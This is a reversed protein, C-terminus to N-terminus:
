EEAKVETVKTITVTVTINKSQLIMEKGPGIYQTGDLMFGDGTFVGYAKLTGTVDFRAPNAAKVMEFNSNRIIAEAARSSRKELTGVTKGNQKWIFKDGIVFADYTSERVEAAVFEILAEQQRSKKGMNEAISYRLMIGAAAGALLLIVVADLINFRLKKGSKEKDAM